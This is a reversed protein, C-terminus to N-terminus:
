IGSSITPLALIRKCVAVMAKIRHNKPNIKLNFFMNM